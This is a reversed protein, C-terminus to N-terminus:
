AATPRHLSISARLSSVFAVVAGLDGLTDTYSASLDITPLCIPLTTAFLSEGDFTLRTPIGLEAFLYCEVLTYFRNIRGRYFKIKGLFWSM